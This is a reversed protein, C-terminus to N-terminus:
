GGGHVIGPSPHELRARQIGSRDIEERLIRIFTEKMPKPIYGKCDIYIWPGRESIRVDSVYNPTEVEPDDPDVQPPPSSGGWEFGSSSVNVLRAGARRLCDAAKEPDASVVLVYENSHEGTSSFLLEDVEVHAHRRRQALEERYRERGYRDILVDRVQKDNVAEITAMEVPQTIVEPPVVLGHWSFVGFGDPYLVAPGDPCHLRSAKRRSRRRGGPPDEWVLSCPRETLLVLGRHPWWWGCSRAVDMLAIERESAGHGAELLWAAVAIQGAAHQGYGGAHERTKERIEGWYEDDAPRGGPRLLDAWLKEGLVRWSGHDYNVLHGALQEGLSAWVSSGNDQWLSPKVPDRVLSGEWVAGHVAAQIPQKVGYGVQESVEELTEFGWRPPLLERPAVRPGVLADLEARVGSLPRGYDMVCLVCSALYGALPSGLWAFIEPPDLGAQRYLRAVGDEAQPRIAPATSLGIAIWEDQIRQILTPERNRGSSGM